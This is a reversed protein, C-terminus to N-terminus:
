SLHVFQLDLHKGTAGKMAGLIERYFRRELYICNAQDKIGIYAATDTVALLKASNLRAESEGIPLNQKINDVVKSWIKQNAEDDRQPWNALIGEEELLFHRALPQYSDGQDLNAAAEETAPEITLVPTKNPKLLRPIKPARRPKTATYDEEIAKRLWGAANQCSGAAVFRQAMALKEQIYEVSYDHALKTATPKKIGFNQLNRAVDVVDTEQLVTEQIVTQQKEMKQLVGEANKPTAGTQNKSIPAAFKLSYTSAEFGKEASRNKGRVIIEKRELSSIANTISTLCLGTGKDLVRGDKTTIGTAIQQLSINDSEKKFGFTRRCIYLLVKFEAGSLQPMLVDFVEDPVPTTTPFQFGQFTAQNATVM